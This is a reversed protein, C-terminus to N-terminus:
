AAIPNTKVPNFTKAEEVDMYNFWGTLIMKNETETINGRHTHTWDVPWVLTLGKRPKVKIKQYFFETEGGDEIDNLYTMFVLHRSNHAQRECHWAPYGGGKNYKQVNLASVKYYDVIDAYIFKKVYAELVSQLNREYRYALDNNEYLCADWSDKASSDVRISDGKGITGQVQSLETNFAHCIEDCLNIEPLYWAGIFSPQDSFTLKVEKM